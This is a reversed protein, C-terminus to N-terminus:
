ILKARAEVLAALAKVTDAYEGPAMDKSQILECISKITKDVEDALKFQNDNGIDSTIIRQWEASSKIKEWEDKPADIQVIVIDENLYSGEKVEIM